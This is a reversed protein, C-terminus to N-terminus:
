FSITSLIDSNARETVRQNAGATSRLTSPMPMKNARITNLLAMSRSQRTGANRASLRSKLRPDKTGIFIQVM